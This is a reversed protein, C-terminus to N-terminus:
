SLDTSKTMSKNQLKRPYKHYLKTSSLGGRPHKMEWPESIFTLQGDMPLIYIFKPNPHFLSPLATLVLSPLSCLLPLSSVAVPADAIAFVAGPADGDTTAQVHKKSKAKERRRNVTSRKGKEAAIKGGNTRM